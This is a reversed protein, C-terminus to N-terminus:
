DYYQILQYLEEMPSLQFDQIQFMLNEPLLILSFDGFPESTKLLYDVDTYNPLLYKVDEEGTFLETPKAIQHSESCKNLIFHICVQSDGHFAQFRPFHYHYYTGFHIIDKIRSFKFNNLKNLHFFLEYDPVEKVLRVLGLTIEKDEEIELTFKQAKM